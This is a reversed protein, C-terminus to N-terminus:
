QVAYYYVSSIRGQPGPVSTWPQKTGLSNCLKVSDTNTQQAICYTTSNYMMHHAIMSYDCKGCSVAAAFGTQEPVLCCYLDNSTKCAAESTVAPTSFEGPLDLDLEEFNSPYQNNALYYAQSAKALSVVLTRLNAFRARNIALTYQPLAIAALIGIILVVVLLEILTFAKKM